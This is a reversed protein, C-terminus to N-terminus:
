SRVESSNTAAMVLSLLEDGFTQLKDALLRLFVALGKLFHGLREPLSPPDGVRQPHDKIDDSAKRHCNRCIPALFEDFAQGAIHHLELVRWDSEGCIVCIPNNSGLRDLAIQRRTERKREVNKM